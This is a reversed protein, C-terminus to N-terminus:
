GIQNKFGSGTRQQIKVFFNCSDELTRNQFFNLANWM